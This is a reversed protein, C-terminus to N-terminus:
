YVHVSKLREVPVAVEELTVYESDTPEPSYARNINWDAKKRYRVLNPNRLLLTALFWRNLARTSV